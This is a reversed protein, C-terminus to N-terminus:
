LYQVSTIAKRAQLYELVLPLEDAEECAASETTGLAYDDLAKETGVHSRVWKAPVLRGEEIRDLDKPPIPHIPVHHGRHTSYLRAMAKLQIRTPEYSWDWGERFLYYRFVAHEDDFAHVQEVLVPVVRQSRRTRDLSHSDTLVRFAHDDPKQLATLKEFFKSPCKYCSLHKYYDDSVGDLWARQVGFLACAEQRVDTTLLPILPELDQLHELSVGSILDPIRSVAVGHVEFLELFRLAVADASDKRRLVRKLIATLDFDVWPTKIKVM